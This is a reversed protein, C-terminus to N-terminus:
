LAPHATLDEAIRRLEGATIVSRGALYPLSSPGPLGMLETQNLGPLHRELM